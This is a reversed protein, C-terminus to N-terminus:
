SRNLTLRANIIGTKETREIKASSVSIGYRLKLANIWILMQDFSANDIKIQAANKGSSEIKSIQKKLGSTTASQEAVISVPSNTNLKKRSKSGSSKLSRVETAAGQMWSLIEKQAVQTTQQNKLNLHLPEWIATYFLTIVLIIAMTITLNQDRQSLNNYRQQLEDLQRM